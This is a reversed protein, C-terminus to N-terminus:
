IRREWGFVRFSQELRVWSSLTTTSNPESSFTHRGSWMCTYTLDSLSSGGPEEWEIVCMVEIVAEEM